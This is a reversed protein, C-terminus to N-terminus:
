NNGFIFVRAELGAGRDPFGPVWFCGNGSSGRPGSPTPPTKAARSGQYDMGL